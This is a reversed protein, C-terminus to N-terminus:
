VDCPLALIYQEPSIFEDAFIKLMVEDCPLKLQVKHCDNNVLYQSKALSLTCGPHDADRRRTLASVNDSVPGVDASRTTETICDSETIKILRRESTM